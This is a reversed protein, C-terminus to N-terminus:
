ATSLNRCNSGATARSSISQLSRGFAGGPMAASPPSWSSATFRSSVPGSRGLMEGFLVGTEVFTHIGYRRAFSIVGHEKVLHPAENPGPDAEWASWAAERQRARMAEFVPLGALRNKIWLKQLKSM